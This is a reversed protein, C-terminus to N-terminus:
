TAKGGKREPKMGYRNRGRRPQSYILREKAPREVDAGGKQSARLEHLQDRLLAAREFELRGAAEVMEQELEEIVKHVDYEVGSERVVQQEIDEADKQIALSDQISKEIGRPTIHHEHNYLLQKERRLSTTDIMRKMSDTIHDAYMLVRGNIHRAARGATQILATESRLFGEKDADLIAVLSVEPLDLGERLLNIGILCDFDAKRLGRLIEVREIADIDSHLYKVRIGLNQLYESLDESTKKTLTTVLVREKKEACRRVEEMLDDIQNALPRVEVQPDLLGTPRIVQKIAGGALQL